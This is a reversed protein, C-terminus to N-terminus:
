MGKCFPLHSLLTLRLMLFSMWSYSAAPVIPALWGAPLFRDLLGDGNRQLGGPVAANLAGTGATNFWIRYGRTTFARATAATYFLRGRL